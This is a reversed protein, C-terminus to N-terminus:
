QLVQVRLAYAIAKCYVKAFRLKWDEDPTQIKSLTKRLKVELADHNFENTKKEFANKGLATDVHWAQEEATLKTELDKFSYKEEVRLLHAGLKRMQDKFETELGRM